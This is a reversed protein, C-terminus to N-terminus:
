ARWGLLYRHRLAEPGPRPAQYRVSVEQAGTLELAGHLWGTLGPDYWAPFFGGAWLSIDAGGRGVQDVTVLGGQAYYGYIRPLNQVLFGPSMLRLMWRHIVTLEERAAAAGGRFNDDRGSWRMYAQTLESVLPADIWEYLGLPRGFRARCPESVTSLLAELALQGGRRLVTRQIQIATPGRLARIELRTQDVLAPPPNPPPLSLLAM